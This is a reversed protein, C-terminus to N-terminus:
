SFDPFYKKVVDILHGFRMLRQMKIFDDHLVRDEEIAPISVRILEYVSELVPSTKLPRRFELAQAAALLEIGVANNTNKLVERAHRAGITGMSVHDEQNASTPVSDVSAPHALVKNESVLAAATYQAIMLGSNLGGNAILFPPLGNSLNADVLRAVRRESINALEAIGIKLFDMALAVPQGHFNGGSVIKEKGAFIIPNDTVSNMEIEVVKRAYAIADRSAGHVQPSCRLSYADQIRKCDTRSELLHSDQMLHRINAASQKQGQHPRLEHLDADMHVIKGMMTDISLAAAIDVHRALNEADHITLAGIATMLQTGNILALGERPLLQIPELGAAAFADVAEMREGRFDVKGEGILGLVIHSLPALDGSSGVSGQSPVLPLIGANLMAALREVLELRVGSYGAALTNIRLLMMARVTEADLYPGVGAAHSRILNQQLHLLKDDDIKVKSFEGFGTTVGYVPESAAVKRDILARSARIRDAANVSIRIPECARAVNVLDLIQLSQGDVDLM